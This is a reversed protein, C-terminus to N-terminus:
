ISQKLHLVRPFHHEKQSKGLSIVNSIEISETSQNNNENSKTNFPLMNNNIIMNACNFMLIIM